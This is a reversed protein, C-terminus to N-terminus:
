VGGDTVASTFPRRRTGERTVVTFCGDADECVARLALSLVESVAIPHVRFYLIAPPAAAGKRFVLEGFDADFTLLWLHRQRALALVGLDDIGPATAVVSLVNHGAAALGEAVSRPMNEDLLLSRTPTM